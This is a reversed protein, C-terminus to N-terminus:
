LLSAVKLFPIDILINGRLLSTICNEVLAGLHLSLPPSPLLQASIKGVFKVYFKDSVLAATLHNKISYSVQVNVFAEQSTDTISKIKLLSAPVFVGLSFWKIKIVKLSKELIGSFCQINTEKPEITFYLFSITKPSCLSSNLSFSICLSLDVLNQFVYYNILTKFLNTPFCKLLVLSFVSSM